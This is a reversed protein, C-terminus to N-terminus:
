PDAPNIRFIEDPFAGPPGPRPTPLQGTGGSDPQRLNGPKTPTTTGDPNVTVSPNAGPFSGPSIFMPVLVPGPAAVTPTGPTGAIAPAGQGAAVVFGSPPKNTAPVSPAPVTSTTISALADRKAQERQFREEFLNEFNPGIENYTQRQRVEAFLLRSRDAPDSIGEFPNLVRDTLQGGLTLALVDETRLAALREAARKELAQTDMLAPDAMPAVPATTPAAAPQAGLVAALLQIFQYQNVSGDPNLEGRARRAAFDNRLQAEYVNLSFYDRSFLPSDPGTGGARKLAAAFADPTLTRAQGTYAADKQQRKYRELDALLKDPPSFGFSPPLPGPTPPM